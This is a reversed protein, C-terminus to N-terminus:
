KARFTTAQIWLPSQCVWGGWWGVTQLSCGATESPCVQLILGMFTLLVTGELNLPSAQPPFSFGDAEQSTYHQHRDQAGGAWGWGGAEPLTPGHHASPHIAFASKEGNSGRILSYGESISLLARLHCLSPSQSQDVYVLEWTCFLYGTPVQRVACPTNQSSRPPHSM